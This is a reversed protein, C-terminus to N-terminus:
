PFDQPIEPSLVLEMCELPNRGPELVSFAIFAIKRASTEASGSQLLQAPQVGM